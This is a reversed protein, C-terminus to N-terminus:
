KKMGAIPEPCEMIDGFMTRAFEHKNYKCAPLREVTSIAYVDPEDSAPCQPHRSMYGGSILDDWTVIEGPPKNNDSAWKQIAWRIACLNARCEMAETARANGLLFVSLLFAGAIGFGTALGALFMKPNEIM